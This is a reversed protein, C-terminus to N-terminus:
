KINIRTRHILTTHTKNTTKTKLCFVAYSIRMLSQLESTHEESRQRVDLGVLEAAGALSGSCDRARGHRGCHAGRQVGGRRRWHDRSGCGACRPRWRALRWQGGASEGDCTRGGPDVHARRCREDTGAAAPLDSSCVYSSWDSILM